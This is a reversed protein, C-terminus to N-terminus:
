SSDTAKILDAAVKNNITETHFHENIISESNKQSEIMDMSVKM